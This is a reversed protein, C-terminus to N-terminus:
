VLWLLTGDKKVVCFWWSRYSATSPEYVGSVIKEKIITVMKGLTAPLIPINRQAWPVHPVTPIKYPPFYTEDLHGHESADWAFVLEHEKVLWQVLKLEEPWLWKAPDLDLKDVREQTFRIGPTFDPPAVPLVLLNSLPNEPLRQQIHYEPPTTTPVTHVKKAVLKYI